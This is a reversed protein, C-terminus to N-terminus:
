SESSLEFVEKGLKWVFVGSYGTLKEIVVNQVPVTIGTYTIILSPGSKCASYKSRSDEDFNSNSQLAFERNFNPHSEITSYQGFPHETLAMLRFNAEEGLRLHKVRITTTESAFM